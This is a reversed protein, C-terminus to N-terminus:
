SIEDILDIAYLIEQMKAENGAELAEGYWQELIPRFERILLVNDSVTPSHHPLEPNNNIHESLDHADDTVIEALYIKTPESILAKWGNSYFLNFQLNKGNQDKIESNLEEWGSRLSDSIALGQCWYGNYVDTLGKEWLEESFDKFAVIEMIYKDNVKFVADGIGTTLVKSDDQSKIPLSIDDVSFIPEPDPIYKNDWTAYFINEEWRGKRGDFIIPDLHSDTYFPSYVADKAFGNGFPSVGTSGGQFYFPSDWDKAIFKGITFMGHSKEYSKNECLLHVEGTSTITFTPDEGELEVGGQGKLLLKGKYTWNKNNNIPCEFRHLSYVGDKVCTTLWILKDGDEVIPSGERMLEYGYPVTIVPRSYDVNLSKINLISSKM